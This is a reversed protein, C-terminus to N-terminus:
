VYGRKALIKGSKAFEEETPIAFELSDAIRDVINFAVCVHIAEEIAEDSLGAKRLPQIDQSTINEPSLTLKELFVLTERM